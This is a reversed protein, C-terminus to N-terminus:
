QTFVAVNDITGTSGYTWLGIYGNNLNAFNANNVDIYLQNNVYVKANTGAITVAIRNNGYPDLSSNEQWNTPYGGYFLVLEVKGDLRIDAYIMNSANIENVMLFPVYATGSSTLTQVDAAVHRNPSSFAQSYHIHSGQQSSRLKGNQVSWSGSDVTWGNYNGDSFDDKFVGEAPKISFNDFTGTGALDSSTYVYVYCNSSPLMFPEAHRLIGNEYFAISGASVKIKQTGTSANWWRWMSSVAGGNLRRQIKVTTDTRDKPFLYFNNLTYPDQSSTTKGDSILLNMGRLGQNSTIDVAIEFGQKTSGYAQLTNYPFKTAYGAQSWSGSSNVSVQLQNSAQSVSANGITLSDWIANSMNTYSFSDQCLNAVEYFRYINVMGVDGDVLKLKANGCNVPYIKVTNSENPGSHYLSGYATLDVGPFQQAGNQTGNKDTSPLYFHEIPSNNLEIVYHIDYDVATGVSTINNFNFFCTIPGLYNAPGSPPPPPNQFIYTFTDNVSIENVDQCGEWYSFSYRNGYSFYNCPYDERTNDLNGNSGYTGATDSPNQLELKKMAYARFIRLDWLQVNVDSDNYITYQNVNTLSYGDMMRLDVVEKLDHSAYKSHYIEGTGTNNLTTTLRVAPYSASDQPTHVRYMLICADTNYGCNPYTDTFSITYSNNPAITLPNVKSKWVTTGKMGQLLKPDNTPSNTACNCDAVYELNKQYNTMKESEINTEKLM